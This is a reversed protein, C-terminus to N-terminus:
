SNCRVLRVKVLKKTAILVVDRLKWTSSCLRLFCATFSILVFSCMSEELCRYTQALMSLGEPTVRLSVLPSSASSFRAAVVQRKGFVLIKFHGWGSVYISSTAEWVVAFREKGDMGYAWMELKNEM